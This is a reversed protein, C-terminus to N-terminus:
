EGEEVTEESETALSEDEAAVDKVPEGTEEPGPEPEEVPTEEETSEEPAPAPEIRRPAAKVKEGPKKKKKVGFCWTGARRLINVHHCHQCELVDPLEDLKETDFILRKCKPNKCIGQPM